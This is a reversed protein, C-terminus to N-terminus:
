AWTQTLGSLLIAPILGTSLERDGAYAVFSGFFYFGFKRGAAGCAERSSDAGAGRERAVM